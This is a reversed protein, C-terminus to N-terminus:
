GRWSRIPKGRGGGWRSISLWRVRRSCTFGCSNLNVSLQRVLSDVMVERVWIMQTDLLIYDRSLRLGREASLFSWSTSKVSLGTERRM